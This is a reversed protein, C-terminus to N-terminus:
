HEKSEHFSSRATFEESIEIQAVLTQPGKHM